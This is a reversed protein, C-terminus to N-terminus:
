QELISKIYRVDAIIKIIGLIEKTETDFVPIGIPISIAIASIDIDVKGFFIEGQGKDYTQKWWKEDAQYYDTTKNTTGVILGKKDTIFIEAYKNFNFKQFKILERGCSNNIFAAELPTTKKHKKWQDDIRKIEVDSINKNNKNAKKLAQIIIPNKALANVLNVSEKILFKEPYSVFIEKELNIKKLTNFLLIFIAIAVIILLFFTRKLRTSM